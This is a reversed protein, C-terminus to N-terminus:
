HWQMLELRLPQKPHKEDIPVYQATGYVESTSTHLVRIGGLEKAVQCINSTGKINTDVYSDPAHYSYPIAILAALHFFIDTGKMIHEFSHPDWVDGSLVKLNEHTPINEQWGWNNLSNYQSLARVKNGKNLFLNPSTHILSAM